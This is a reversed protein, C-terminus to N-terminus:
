ARAEQQIDDEATWFFERNFFTWLKISSDIDGQPRHAKPEPPLKAFLEPNVLRLQERTSSMDFIRYHMSNYLKEMHFLMFMRDLTVSNGALPLKADGVKEAVWEALREAVMERLHHIRRRSDGTLDELEHILGSREHMGFVDENRMLRSRWDPTWVLETVRHLEEGHRDTVRLGVELVVDHLPDLGTTELDGWLILDTM